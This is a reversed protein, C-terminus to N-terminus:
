RTTSAIAAALADAFLRHGLADLDIVADAGHRLSMKEYESPPADDSVEVAYLHPNRQYGDARAPLFYDLSLLRIGGPEPDILQAQYSAPLSAAWTRVQASARSSDRATIAIKINLALNEHDVFM